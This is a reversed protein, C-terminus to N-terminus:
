SVGLKLLHRRLSEKEEDSFAQLVQLEGYDLFVGKCLSCEDLHLRHKLEIEKLDSGDKPCHMWHLKKAIRGEEGTLMKAVMRKRQEQDERFATLIKNLDPKHSKRSAFLLNLFGIRFGKGETELLIEELEGRDFFLGGCLTCRDILLKHDIPEEQMQSGCKPCKMWHLEKRRAAEENQLAQTIKQERRLRERKLDEILDREHKAFWEDETHIRKSM